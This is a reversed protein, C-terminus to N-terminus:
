TGTEFVLAEPLELKGKEKLYYLFFPFEIKKRLM